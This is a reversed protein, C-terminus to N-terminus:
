VSAIRDPADGFRLSITTGQKSRTLSGALSMLEHRLRMSARQACLLLRGRPASAVANLLEHALEARRGSSTVDTEDNCALVAVRVRDQRGRASDVVHRTRDLLGEDTAPGVAVVNETDGNVHGPWASGPEMVILSVVGM